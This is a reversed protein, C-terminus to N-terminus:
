RAETFSIEQGNWKFTENPTATFNVGIAPGIRERPSFMRGSVNGGLRIAVQFDAIDATDGFGAFLEVPDDVALAGIFAKWVTIRRDRVNSGLVLTRWAYDPDALILRSPAGRADWGDLELGAGDWTQGNWSQTSHSCLRSTLGVWEIQVLHCPQFVGAAAQNSTPTSITPM